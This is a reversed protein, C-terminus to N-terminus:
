DDVVRVSVVEGILGSPITVHAYNSGFPKVKKIIVEQRSYKFVQNILQLLEAVVQSDDVNDCNTLIETLLESDYELQSLSKESINSTTILEQLIILLNDRTQEIIITKEM